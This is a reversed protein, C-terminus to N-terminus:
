ICNVLHRCVIVECVVDRVVVGPIDVVVRLALGLVLRLALVRHLKRVASSLHQPLTSHCTM